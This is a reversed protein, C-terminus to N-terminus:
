TGGAEIREVDGSLAIWREEESALKVALEARTSSLRAAERPDKEYLGPAALKADLEALQREMKAMASEAEKIQKRLPGLAPRKPAGDRSRTDSATKDGRSKESGRRLVLQQYEDLDGEYPRVTGDGVLWLREAAADLLSRDHSILIVAGPFDNLAEVLAQRAAIDLHNTPEDLILLHPGRFAALGLLLRAKEGGSLSAIRTNAPEGSFGMEAARSRVRAEPADPMLRRVHDYVTDEAVLEDLQHQALYAIELGPARVVQGGLPALRDSILKAFTSKGNGNPGLLAIRDDHDIRLTLNRLVTRGDYGASVGDLTLIPPSLLREPHRISIAAAAEGVVEAIPAMRALAKLRSQAQRAKTAKARFRQVFSEMHKRKADQKARAKQDLALKETRQREFSDYGGRWLTLKRQDLHLIFSVSQNLLERDHSVILVTRPYHALYDQLWLTGELDLYNTPEDLLLLDPASFLVAALAVRMRWGGSFEACPRQQATEDFGLGALIRAARAPASHADIDVLRLEIDAIRGPDEASERERLLSAREVDAALVVDILREPGAPAEQAVQGIRANGPMRIDGGELALDGTIARFLTTKGTGNRGVLGVRGGEPIFVSAHEILLRGAVRLSIDDFTIM